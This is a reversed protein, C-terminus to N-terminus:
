KRWTNSNFNITVPGDLEADIKMDAGFVGQEVCGVGEKKLCELVWEYLDKAKNPDMAQAFSPRNGKKTDACLTFNSVVLVSLQNELVSNNMKDNEDTFIRLKAIKGALIECDTVDDTQFVGLLVLLGKNIRGVTQNSVTVKASNVRQITAIM